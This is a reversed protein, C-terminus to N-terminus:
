VQHFNFKDFVKDFYFAQFFHINLNVLALRRVMGGDCSIVKGYPKFTNEDMCELKQLILTKAQLSMHPKRYNTNQLKNLFKCQCLEKFGEKLLPYYFSNFCFIKEYRFHDFNTAYGQQFKKFRSNIYRLPNEM